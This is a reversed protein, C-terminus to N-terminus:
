GGSSYCLLFQREGRLRVFGDGVHQGHEVRWFEVFQSFLRFRLRRATELDPTGIEREGTDAGAVAGKLCKM